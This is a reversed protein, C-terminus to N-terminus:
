SALFLRTRREPIWGVWGKMAGFRAFERLKEQLKRFMEEFFSGVDIKSRRCNRYIGQIEFYSYKARYSHFRSFPVASRSLTAFISARSDEVRERGETFSVSGSGSRTTATFTICFLLSQLTRARTSTKHKSFVHLLALISRYCLCSSSSGLCSSFSCFFVHLVSSDLLM